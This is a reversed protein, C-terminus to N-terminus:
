PTSRRNATRPNKDQSTLHWGQCIPCHYTRKEGTDRAIAAALAIKAELETPYRIRKQKGHCKKGAM